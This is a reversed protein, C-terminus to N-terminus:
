NMSSLSRHNLNHFDAMRGRYGDELMALTEEMPISAEHARMKAVHIAVDALIMGWSGSNDGFLNQMTVVSDGEGIWVRLAEDADPMEEVAQPADLYKSM